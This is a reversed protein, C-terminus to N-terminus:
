PLLEFDSARGQGPPDEAPPYPTFDHVPDIDEFGPPLLSGDDEFGPEPAGDSGPGSGRAGKKSKKASKGSGGGGFLRKWWPVRGGAEASKSGAEKTDQAPQPDLAKAEPIMVEEGAAFVADGKKPTGNQIDAILFSRNREPSV